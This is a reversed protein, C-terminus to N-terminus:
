SCKKKKEKLKKHIIIGTVILVIFLFISLVAITTKNEFEYVSLFSELYGYDWAFIKIDGYITYFGATPLKEHLEENFFLKANNAKRIKSNEDIVNIPPFFLFYYTEDFFVIIGNLLALYENDIWKRFVDKETTAETVFIKDGGIEISHTALKNFGKKLSLNNVLKINNSKNHNVISRIIVDRDSYITYIASSTTIGRSTQYKISHDRTMPRKRGNLDIFTGTMEFQFNALKAEPDSSYLWILNKNDPIRGMVEDLAMRYEEQINRTPWLMDLHIDDIIFQFESDLIKVRTIEKWAEWSTLTTFEWIRRPTAYIIVEGDIKVEERVASEDNYFTHIKGSLERNEGISQFGSIASKELSQILAINQWDTVSLKNRVDVQDGSYWPFRAFHNQLDDSIFKHGYKAFITNRLIRLDHKSLNEITEKEMVNDLCSINGMIIADIVIDQATVNVSIFFLIIISFIKVVNKKM